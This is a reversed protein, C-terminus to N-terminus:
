FPLTCSSGWTYRDGGGGGGGWLEGVGIQKSSGQQM